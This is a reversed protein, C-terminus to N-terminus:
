GAKNKRIYDYLTQATNVPLYLKLEEISANKIGDLNEFKSLLVKRRKPGIGPIEELPSSLAIEKRKQRHYKLAFRHAEDRIRQLLRLAASNRALKLPMSKDPFYIEEERKALGLVPISVGLNDLVQKAASVQGKGGDILVLDVMDEPSINQFRRKVVEAMMAYDDIGAVTKIQFHRYKHKNFGGPHQWIVTSGVAQQGQINSIDFGAIRQPPITLDLEQQIQSLILINRKQQLQLQQLTTYANENALNVLQRKQGRQPILLKVQQGKSHTLWKILLNQEDPTYPLLIRQPIKPGGSSYLQQIFSSLLKVPSIQREGEMLLSKHGIVMGQRVFLVSFCTTENDTAMGIIDEDYPETSIIKQRESVQELARLNDRLRAALEYQLNDAAEQMKKHLQERLEKNKGELFYKIQQVLENYEEKSVLGQCPALCRKMQYNLCPRQRKFDLRTCQRLPFIQGLLKLTSRLAKTPVYPGYYLGEKKRGMKRVVRLRPFAESLNLQLYPYNKDDRLIVNYRPQEKKILVNELILAELESHTVIYELDKAASLMAKTKPETTPRTYSIVRKILSASKGVYIVRKDKDKFLYVGPKPPLSKAKQLWPPRDKGM